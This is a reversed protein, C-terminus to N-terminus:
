GLHLSCEAVARFVLFPLARKVLCVLLGLHDCYGAGGRQQDIVSNRDTSGQIQKPIPDVVCIM